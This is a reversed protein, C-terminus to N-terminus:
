GEREKQDRKERKTERTRNECRLLYIPIPIPWHRVELWDIRSDHNVTAVNFGSVLDVSFVYFLFTIITTGLTLLRLFFVHLM